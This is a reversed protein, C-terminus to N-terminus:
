MYKKPLEEYLIYEEEYLRKLFSNIGVSDLFGNNMYQSLAVGYIHEKTIDPMKELLISKLDNFDKTVKNKYENDKVYSEYWLIYMIIVDYFKIISSIKPIVKYDGIYYVNNEAKKINIENYKYEPLIFSIRKDNDGIVNIRVPEPIKEPILVPQKRQRKGFLKNRDDNETKPNLDINGFLQNQNNNENKPLIVNETKPVVFLDNQINKVSKKMLPSNLKNKNDERFKKKFEEIDIKEIKENTVEYGEGLDTKEDSIFINENDGNDSSETLDVVNIFNNSDSDSDIDNFLKTPAVRGTFRRTRKQPSPKIHKKGLLVDMKESKIISGKNLKGFIPNEDTKENFIHKQFEKSFNESKDRLHEFALSGELMQKPEENYLKEQKMRIMNLLIMFDNEDKYVDYEIKSNFIDNTFSAHHAKLTSINKGRMSKNNGFKIHLNKDYIYRGMAGINDFAINHIKGKDKFILIFKNTFFLSGTSSEEQGVLDIITRSIEKIKDVEVIKTEVIQKIVTYMKQVIMNSNLLVANLDGDIKLTDVAVISNELLMRLNGSNTLSGFNGFLMSMNVKVEGADKGFAVKSAEAFEEEIMSLALNRQMALKYINNDFLEM